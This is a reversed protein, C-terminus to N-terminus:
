ISTSSKPGQQERPADAGRLQSRREAERQVAEALSSRLRAAPAIGELVKRNVVDTADFAIRRMDELHARVAALEAEADDSDDDDHSCIGDLPEPIPVPDDTASPRLGIAWACDLAAQLFQRAEADNHSFGFLSWGDLTLHRFEFSVVAEITGDAPVPERGFLLRIGVRDGLGVRETYFKWNWLM